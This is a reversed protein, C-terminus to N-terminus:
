RNPDNANRILTFVATLMLYSRVDKDLCQMYIYHTRSRCVYVYFIICSLYSKLDPTHTKM